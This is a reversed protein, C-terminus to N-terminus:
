MAGPPDPMGIVAYWYVHEPLNRVDCGQEQQLEVVNGIGWNYSALAWPLRNEECGQRVALNQLYGEACRASDEWSWPDGDCRRGEWVAPGIQFPGLEGRAGVGCVMDAGCEAASWALLFAITVTIVDLGFDAIWFGIAAAAGGM